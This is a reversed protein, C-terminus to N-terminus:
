QSGIFSIQGSRHGLALTGDCFASCSPRYEPPLWLVKQNDLAVWQSSDALHINVASKPLNKIHNSYQHDIDLAGIDTELYPGHESFKMDYITGDVPLTQHLAGSSPDWLKVTQDESASALLRGDPSFVVSRVWADHGELTQHLAGSSPDWLKVTRDSSATLGSQALLLLM